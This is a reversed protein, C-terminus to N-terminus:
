PSREIGQPFFAVVDNGGRDFMRSHEFGALIQFFLPKSTVKRGTSRSPMSSRCSSSAAMVSWVMRIETMHALLSVPLMKGMSSIPAMARLYLTRKWVSATCATPLIGTSTCFALTSRSTREPCLIPAGLPTPAM